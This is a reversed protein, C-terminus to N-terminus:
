QNNGRTFAIYDTLPPNGGRNRIIQTIQTRHHEGHLSLHVMMDAPSSHHVDGKTNRYRVKQHLGEDPSTILFRHYKKFNEKMLRNCEELSLEPWFDQPWPDNGLMREFYIDEATVIHSFLQIGKPDPTQQLANWTRNNAWYMHDILKKILHTM